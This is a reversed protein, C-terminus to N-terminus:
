FLNNIGHNITILPNGSLETTFFRGTLTPSVPSVPEIEPDPPDGPPAFPLESWYEQGSFGMSLPVQHVVPWPTGVAQGSAM